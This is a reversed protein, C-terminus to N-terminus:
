RGRHAFANICACARASRATDSVAWQQNFGVLSEFVKQHTETGRRGVVYRWPQENSSSPAWRAAEFVRKLDEQAVDRNAFATHEVAREVTSHIVPLVGAAPVAQKIKNVESASLTM